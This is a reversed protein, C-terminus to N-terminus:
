DLLIMYEKPFYERFWALGERVTQWQQLMEAGIATYYVAAAEPTLEVSAGSIPNTVMEPHKGVTCDFPLKM